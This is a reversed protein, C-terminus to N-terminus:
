NDHEHSGYLFGKTCINRDPIWLEGAAYLKLAEIRHDTSEGFHNVM